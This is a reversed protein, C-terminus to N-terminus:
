FVLPTRGMVEEHWRDLWAGLHEALTDAPALEMRLLPRLEAAWSPEGEVAGSTASLLLFRETLAARVVPTGLWEMFTAAGAPHPGGAVAAVGRVLTPAGSEPVRFDVPRGAEMAARAQSLSLLALSAQGRGLRHAVDDGSAYEKRNADLRALWDFGPDDGASESGMRAVVTGIFAEMTPSETADPLLVEGSWRSHFVDIWDRPARGRSTRDVNFALVMPDAVWGMWRGQPDRMADPLAGAWSPPAAALLGEAAARAFLWTPAGVWVDAVPAAREDRLRGLAAPGDLREVRLTEGPHADRFGDALWEAIAPDGSLYVVVTPAPAACAALGFTVALGPVVARGLAVARGLSLALGPTVAQGPVGGRRAASGRGKSKDTDM